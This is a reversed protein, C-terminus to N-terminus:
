ATGRCACAPRLGPTPRSPRTTKEIAHDRFLAPPLGGNVPACASSWGPRRATWVPLPSLEALGTARRLRTLLDAAHLPGPTVPLFHPKDAVLPHEDQFVIEAEFPLVPENAVAALLLRHRQRSLPLQGPPLRLRGWGCRWRAGHAPWDDVLPLREALLGGLAALRRAPLARRQRGARLVCGAAPPGDTSAPGGPASTSPGIVNAARGRRRQRAGPASGPPAATRAPSGVAADSQRHRCARRCQPHLGGDRRAPDPAGRLGPQYWWGGRRARGLAGCSATSSPVATSAAM